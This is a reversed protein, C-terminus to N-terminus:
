RKPKQTLLFIAAAGLLLIKPDMWWSAPQTGNAAAVNGGPGMKFLQPSRQSRSEVESVEEQVVRVERPGAPPSARRGARRAQRGARREQRRAQRGARREQRRSRRGQRRQQGETGMAGGALATGGQILLEQERESLEFQGNM